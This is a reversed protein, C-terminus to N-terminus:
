SARTLLEDANTPLMALLRNVLELVMASVAIAEANPVPLPVLILAEAVKSVSITM